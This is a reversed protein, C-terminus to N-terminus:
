AVRKWAEIISPVEKKWADFTEGSSVSNVFMDLLTQIAASKIPRNQGMRDICFDAVDCFQQITMPVVRQPTGNIGMKISVQCIGWSDLHISPAIFLCYAPKGMREEFERLHRIIPMGELMWQKGDTLMTVECIASFAEYFCEIDAQGGSATHTPMGQDDVPYNPHIKEADNLVGDLASSVLYELRLAPPMANDGKRRSLKRLADVLDRAQDPSRLSNRRTDRLLEGHQKRLKALYRKLEERSMGKIEGAEPAGKLKKIEARVVQIAKRSESESEGPLVPTKASGLYDLYKGLVVSKNRKSWLAFEPLPASTDREFLSELESRRTPDLDIYSGMGRLYVYKTMRFYRIANDRYDRINKMDVSAVIKRADLDFYKKKEAAPKKAIKRRLNVIREAIGDIRRWDGLTLAFIGFEEVSLGKSKEGSALCIKNVADILRLAGVFPKIHCNRAPVSGGELPNPFQWKLLARQFVESYDGSAELLMKGMDTIVVRKKHLAAFGLKQLPSFSTRGRMPPDKYDKSEFIACADDYSIPGGGELIDIHEKSLGNYFQASGTGYARSQILRIQYDVQADKDWKVGEMDRLTALFDQLREPSRVTTSISWTRPM